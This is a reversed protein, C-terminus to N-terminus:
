RRADGGVRGFGGGPFRHGGGVLHAGVCGGARAAGIALGLGVVFAFRAGQLVHGHWGDESVPRARRPSALM